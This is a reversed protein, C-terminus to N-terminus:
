AETGAAPPYHDPAGGIGNAITTVAPAMVRLKASDDVLPKHACRLMGTM